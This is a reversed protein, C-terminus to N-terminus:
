FNREFFRHNCINNADWIYVFSGDYGKYSGDIELRTYLRGDGGQFQSQTGMNGYNDVIEPFGHMDSQTMQQLVKDTYTIESLPNQLNEAGSSIKPTNGGGGGGSGTPNGLDNFPNNDQNFDEVCVDATGFADKRNVPNNRCYAFMNTGIIGQGTSAYSDANIFRHTTPDYYRSQLYYFGTETATYYSFQM